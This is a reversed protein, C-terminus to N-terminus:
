AEVPFPDLLQFLREFNAVARYYLPVLLLRALVRGTITRRCVVEAGCFFRRCSRDGTVSKTASEVKSKMYGM